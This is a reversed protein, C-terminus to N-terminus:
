LIFFFIDSKSIIINGLTNESKPVLPPLVADKDDKTQQLYTKSETKQLCFFVLVTIYILVDFKLYMYTANHGIISNGVNLCGCDLIDLNKSVSSYTTVRTHEDFLRLSMLSKITKIVLQDKFGNTLYCKYIELLRKGKVKHPRLCQLTMGLLRFCFDLDDDVVVFSFGSYCSLM